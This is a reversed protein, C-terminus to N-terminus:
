MYHRWIMVSSSRFDSDCNKAIRKPIGPRRIFTLIPRNRRNAMLFQTAM